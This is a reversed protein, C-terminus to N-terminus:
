GNYECDITVLTLSLISLAISENEEDEADNLLSFFLTFLDIILLYLSAGNLERSLLPTLNMTSVDYQSYRHRSDISLYRSMSEM